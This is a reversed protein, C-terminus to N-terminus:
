SIPNQRRLAAEGKPTIFYNAKRGDGIQNVWGNALLRKMIKSIQGKDRRVKAAITGFALRGSELLTSLVLREIQSPIVIEEPQKYVMDPTVIEKGTKIAVDMAELTRELLTYTSPASVNIIATITEDPIVRRAEDIASEENQSSHFLGLAARKHIIEKADAITKVGPFPQIKSIRSASTLMSEKISGGFTYSLSIVANKGQFWAQNGDFFDSLIVDDRTKDLEDIIYFPNGRKELSDILLGSVREADLDTRGVLSDFSTAGSGQVVKKVGAEVADSALSVGPIILSCANTIEKAILPAYKKASKRVREIQKKSGALKGAGILIARHFQQSLQKASACNMAGEVTVNIPIINNIAKQRVCLSVVGQMCTTKGVGRVGYISVRKGSKACLDLTEASFGAIDHFLYPFLPDQYNILEKAMYNKALVLSKTSM